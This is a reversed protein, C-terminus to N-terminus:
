AVCLSNLCTADTDDSQVAKSLFTHFVFFKYWLVVVAAMTCKSSIYVVKLRVFLKSGWTTALVQGHNSLGHQPPPLCHSLGM